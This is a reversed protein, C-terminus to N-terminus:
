HTVGLENITLVPDDAIKEMIAGVVKLVEPIPQAAPASKRATKTKMTADRYHEATIIMAQCLYQLTDPELSEIDIGRNNFSEILRIVPM